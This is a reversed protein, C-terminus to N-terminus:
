ARGYIVVSYPAIALEASAPLGDYGLAEATLDGVDDAPYDEGYSTANTNLLLRWVGDAPLGIRYGTWPRYSLNVVVVVDDGPGGDAWRHFALVKAQDNRHYVSVGQGTLGRSTGDLNRRLRILDRYCAVIGKFRRRRRWDLPVTDRFWEDELFEQGQFLMPIGPATMVLAAGLTSRKRAPWSTPDGADIESPVRAHGNAVEDHSETYVVRQFADDNYRVEMAEAVSEISRHEDAVETLAARVPHVFAGDWQAHFAAGDVRTLAPDRQMDEAILLRDPFEARIATNIWGMLRWGDPLDFGSATVSRIYPTMDFRLGDAHFDRLWMLANDRLYDRVEPRGYDPRTDGWPTWSRDDNYFYIGGKGNEHWGDFQWLDLDSPGLHNYVVDVIVAIGLTHLRRILDKLEDPGGYASEVAFIQAPNYGWSYDGAFESVPMLEVANVGLSVLHHLRKEVSDFDGPMGETDALFSGVHLEYIVLEHHGIGLPRDGRWDYDAHSYIVANGVSNRVRYAYPDLKHLTGAATDLSFRYEQGPGVKEVEGYWYGNGESDLRHRTADWGNFEGIVSVAGAHPAWVRFACGGAHVIAGMGPLHDAM